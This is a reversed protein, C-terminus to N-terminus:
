DQQQQQEAKITERRQIFNTLLNIEPLYDLDETKKDKTTFLAKIPSGDPFNKAPADKFGYNVETRERISANPNKSELRKAEAEARTKYRVKSPKEPTGYDVEVFETRFEDIDGRKSATKLM